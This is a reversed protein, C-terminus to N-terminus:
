KDDETVKKFDEDLARLELNKQNTLKTVASTKQDKLGWAVDIIGVDSRVVLDYFRDAVRTFMAQALGGGLSQSETVVTGLKANAKALEDKETALYRKVTELRVDVQRDVRQDFEDLQKQIADARSLVGSMQEIQAQETPPLRYRARQQIDQEQRLLETLRTTASREAQGASGATAAERTADSIEERLKDHGTRLEDLTARLDRVPQQIDEPRIKQEARSNRYYQEIAVLQAELGQIEVNLESAKGDLERYRARVEQERAM